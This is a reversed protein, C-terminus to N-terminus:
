AGFNLESTSAVSIRRFESEFARVKVAAGGHHPDRIARSRTALAVRGGQRSPRAVRGCSSRPAISAQDGYKEPM